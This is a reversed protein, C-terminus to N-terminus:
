LKFRIPVYVFFISLSELQCSIFFTVKFDYLSWNSMKIHTYTHTHTGKLQTISSQFVVIAFYKPRHMEINAMGLYLERVFWKLHNSCLFCAHVHMYLCTGVNMIYAAPNGFETGALSPWQVFDGWDPLESSVASGLPPLWRVKRWNHELAPTPCVCTDHHDTYFFIRSIFLTDLARM